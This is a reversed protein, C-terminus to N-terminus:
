RGQGLLGKANEYNQPRGYIGGIGGTTNSKFALYATEGV